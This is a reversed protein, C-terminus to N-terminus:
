EAGCCCDAVHILGSKGVQWAGCVCGYRSDYEDFEDDDYDDRDDYDDEDDEDQRRLSIKEKKLSM